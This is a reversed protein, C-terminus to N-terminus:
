YKCDAPTITSTALFKGNKTFYNWTLNVKRKLMFAEAEQNCIVTKYGSNFVADAVQQNISDISNMGYILTRGQRSISLIKTGDPGTMPLSDRLATVYGDLMQDTLYNPASKEQPFVSSLCSFIAMFVVVNKM